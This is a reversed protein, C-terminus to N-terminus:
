VQIIKNNLESPVVYPKGFYGMLRIIWKSFHGNVPSYNNEFLRRTWFEGVYMTLERRNNSM